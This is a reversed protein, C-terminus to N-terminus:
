NYCEQTIPLSAIYALADEKSRIRGDLQARFAADLMASFCRSPRYGAAILDRGQLIPEPKKCRIGLRDAQSLFWVGAEWKRALAEPTTRGLFDACAVRELADLNVRTSLRRFAPAKAKNRFFQMVALHHRVLPVIIDVFRTENTLRALLARTPAVGAKEHGFARIRLPVVGEKVAEKWAIREKSAREFTTTQAKGTDHCLVAYMLALKGKEGRYAECVAPRSALVDVMADLAMMTHRWVDGEPHYTPDQPVGILAQLEPFHRALIGWERMREFGISPHRAKLLLKKWEEYVREKPLENLMGEQVMKRCLEATEYAVDFEFRAAFQVARYVRLPDEAFTADDIHRLIGYQLDHLGGYADYIEGTLPDYGLANITFDRRKAATAFDLFGDPTVDFGRHGRGTKTETRPFSFDYTEDEIRLKLVGFSKGVEYVNGFPKLLAALEELTHLGYVEIDFDKPIKGLLMDRVAGGVILAKAGHRALHAAVTHLFPIM